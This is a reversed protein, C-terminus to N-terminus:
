YFLFNYYICLRYRKRYLHIQSFHWFFLVLNRCSFHASHQSCVIYLPYLLFLISYSSTSHIFKIKHSLIFSGLFCPNLGCDKRMHIWANEISLIFSGLFCPNLSNLTRMIMGLREKLSLIFSGLFCPNLRIFYIGYILVTCIGPFFSHDLFVLISVAAM